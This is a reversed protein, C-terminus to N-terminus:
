DSRRKCRLLFLLLKAKQKRFATFKVYKMLSTSTMPSFTSLRVQPPREWPRVAWICLRLFLPIMLSAVFWFWVCVNKPRCPVGGGIGWGGRKGLHNFAMPVRWIYDPCPETVVVCFRALMLMGASRRTFWTVCPWGSRWARGRCVTFTSTICCHWASPASLCELQTALPRTYLGPTIQTM